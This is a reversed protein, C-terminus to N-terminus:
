MRYSIGFPITIKSIEQDFSTTETGASQGNLTTTSSQDFSPNTWLYALGTFVATKESFHYLVEGGLHWAIGLGLTAESVVNLRDFGSVGSVQVMPSLAISMGIGTNLVFELNDSRTAFFPGVTFTSAMWYTTDISWQFSPDLVELAAAAQDTAEADTGNVSIVTTMTFGFGDQFPFRNSVHISLGPMALGGDANGPDTSAFDGTPVAAGVAFSISRPDQEQGTIALNAIIMFLGLFVSLRSLM